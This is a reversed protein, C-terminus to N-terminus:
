TFKSTAYSDIFDPETFGTEDLYISHIIGRLTSGTNTYEETIDQSYANGFVTWYDGTSTSIV